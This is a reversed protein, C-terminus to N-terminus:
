FQLRRMRTIAAFKSAVESQEVHFMPSTPFPSKGPKVHFLEERSQRLDATRCCFVKYDLRQKGNELKM